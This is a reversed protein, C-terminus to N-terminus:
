VSPGVETTELASRLKVLAADGSGTAAPALAVNVWTSVFLPGLAASLALKTCATGALEVNTEIAAGAPQLQMVGATPPVPFTTQLSRFIAPPVAAVNESTVFTLALADLPVTIASVADALEDTLSGLERLLVAVAAVTTPVAECACIITVSTAEGFGTTAPFLM